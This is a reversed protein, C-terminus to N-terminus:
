PLHTYAPSYPSILVLPSCTANVTTCSLFTFSSLIIFPRPDAQTSSPRFTPTTLFFPTFTCVSPRCHLIQLTHPRPPLLTSHPRLLLPPLLNSRPLLFPPNPSHNALRPRHTPPPRDSSPGSCTMLSIKITHQPTSISRSILISHSSSSSISQPLLSLSFLLSASVALLSALTQSVTVPQTRCSESPSRLTRVIPRFNVCYPLEPGARGTAPRFSSTGSKSFSLVLSLLRRHPNQKGAAMQRRGGKERALIYLGEDHGEEGLMMARRRRVVVEDWEDEEEEAVRREEM